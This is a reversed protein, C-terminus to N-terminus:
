FLCSLHIGEKIIKEAFLGKGKNLTDKVSINYSKLLNTAEAM